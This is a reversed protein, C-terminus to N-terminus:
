RPLGVWDPHIYDKAYVDDFANRFDTGEIIFNKMYTKEGPNLFGAWWGFTGISVIMHDTLTLAALDVAASNGEMITVDSRDRSIYKRCWDGDQSAVLFHVNHYRSTFYNMANHVYTDTVPNHGNYSAWWGSYSM